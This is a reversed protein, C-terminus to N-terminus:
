HKAVLRRYLHWTAHGLVPLVVILGAFVPVMALALAVAVIVGWALMPVLNQRVARISTALAVTASREGDVLMPLSVVSIAMAAFAFGAGVLNGLAFMEWGAGTAFVTTLFDALGEPAEVGITFYVIRQAVVIWAVFLLTLLGVVLAVPAFAPSTAVGFADRLAPTQGQERLRSLEFIGVATIPGLLAFGAVLPFLLPMLAYDFAAYSLVFGIIPYLLFLFVLHSPQVLFDQAGQRLVALLDDFGITNIQRTVLPAPAVSQYAM